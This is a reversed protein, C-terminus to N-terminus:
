VTLWAGTATPPPLDYNVILQPKNVGDSPHISIGTIGTAIPDNLVDHGERLALKTFGSTNILALGTSNLTFDLFTNTSVTGIDIDTALATTGVADFDAGAILTESAQTSEVLRIFDNGDNDNDNVVTVYVRLTASTITANDPITSTDFPLFVRGMFTGPESYVASPTTNVEATGSTADHAASWSAGSVWVEGDGSANSYFSLVSM